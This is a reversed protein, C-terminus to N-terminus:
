FVLIEELRKIGGRERERERKERKRVSSVNGETRGKM